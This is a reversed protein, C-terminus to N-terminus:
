RKVGKRFRGGKKTMRRLRGKAKARALAAKYKVTTNVLISKNANLPEFVADISCLDGLPENELNANNVGKCFHYIAARMGKDVQIKRMTGKVAQFAETMGENKQLGSFLERLYYLRSWLILAKKRKAETKASFLNRFALAQQEVLARKEPIKLTTSGVKIEEINGKEVTMYAPDEKMPHLENFVQGSGNDHVSIECVKYPTDNLTFSITIQNVGFEMSNVLVVSIKFISIGKKYYMKLGNVISDRKTNLEKTIANKFDECMREIAPSRSLVYYNESALRPWWVLDIDETQVKTYDLLRDMNTSSQIQEGYKEDLLVLTSGGILTIDEPNYELRIAKPDVSGLDSLAKLAFRNQGKKDTSAIVLKSADSFYAKQTDGLSKAAARLIGYLKAIFEPTTIYKQLAEKEM